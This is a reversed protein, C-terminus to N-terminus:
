DVNAFVASALTLNDQNLTLTVAFPEGMIVNPLWHAADDWMRTFPLRNVDHWEPSLEQSEHPELVTRAASLPVTFVASCMDSAPRAPFVFDITGLRTMAEATIELGTEEQLERSAAVADSEGPEVKGGPAVVKGAGFGSKKLGLLVQQAGTEPHPRFVFCLVVARASM